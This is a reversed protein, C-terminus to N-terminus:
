WGGSCEMTFLTRMGLANWEMRLQMGCVVLIVRFLMGVATLMGLSVVNGCGVLIVWFLMGFCCEVEMGLSVVNGRAGSVISHSLGLVNWAMGSFSSNRVFNM